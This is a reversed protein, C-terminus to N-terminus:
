TSEKVKTTLFEIVKKSEIKDVTNTVGVMRKTDGNGSISIYNDPICSVGFASQWLSNILNHSTKYNVRIIERLLRCIEDYKNDKYEENTLFKNIGDLNIDVEGIDSSYTSYYLCSNNNRIIFTFIHSAYKNILIRCTWVLYQDGSVQIRLDPIIYSPHVEDRNTFGGPEFFHININHIICSDCLKAWLEAVTLHCGLVTQSPYYITYNQRQGRIINFFDISIHNNGTYTDILRLIIDTKQTLISQPTDTTLIDPMEDSNSSSGHQIAHLYKIKYKLYKQKLNKQKLNNYM